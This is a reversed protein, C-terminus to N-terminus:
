GYALLGEGKGKAIMGMAWYRCADWAHNYADIPKNIKEGTKLERWKYNQAEKIWNKSERTIYMKGRQKIIDISFQISDQGKDAPIINWGFMRLEKISKPDASDAFIMDSKRVGLEILMAHIDRNTMGTRYLLEEGYIKGDALGCRVLTTPDVSFGFDMGYAVKNLQEPMEDVVSYDFIAGEVKGTQGLGYVRFLMPDTERLKLISEVINPSVFPNHEYNSIFYATNPKGLLKDHVWFEINPNYDIFVREDTRVELENYISYPIGNAENMFLVQRKGSKADQPTQYSSFEVKTGNKFTLVRDTSNYGAINTRIFATDQIINFADRIAGKKLNPIDQGVVTIVWGSNEIALCFLVQLISYTKGSNHVLIPHGTDIHFNHNDKVTLDHVYEVGEVYEFSEIDDIKLSYAM